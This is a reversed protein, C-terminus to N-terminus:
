SKVACRSIHSKITLRFIRSWCWHPLDAPYLSRGKGEVLLHHSPRCGCKIKKQGYSTIGGEKQKLFKGNQIAELSSRNIVLSAAQNMFKQIFGILDEFKSPKQKKVTWIVFLHSESYLQINIKIKQINICKNFNDM